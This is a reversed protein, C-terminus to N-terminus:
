LYQQYVQTRPDHKGTKHFVDIASQKSKLRQRQSHQFKEFQENTYNTEQLQNLERQILKTTLFKSRKTTTTGGLVTGRRATLFEAWMRNAGNEDPFDDLHSQFTLPTPM